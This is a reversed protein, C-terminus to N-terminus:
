KVQEKAQRRIEALLEVARQCLVLQTVNQCGIAGLTEVILKTQEVTLELKVPPQAPLQQALVPGSLLLGIALLLRV